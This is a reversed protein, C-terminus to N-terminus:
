SHVLEYKMPGSRAEQMTKFKKACNGDVYSNFADENTPVLAPRPNNMGSGPYNFPIGNNNNISNNNTIMNNFMGNNMAGLPGVMNQLPNYYSNANMADLFSLGSGTFMAPNMSAMMNLASMPFGMGVPIGMNALYNIFNSNNFAAQRNVAQFSDIIVPVLSRAILNVLESDSDSISTNNSNNDNSNSNSQTHHNLPAPEQSKACRKRKKRELKTNDHVRSPIQNNEIDSVVL